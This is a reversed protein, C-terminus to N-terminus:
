AVFVATEDLYGFQRMVKGHQHLIREIQSPTLEKLGSGTEGKRFFSPSTIPRERFGSAEEQDKLTEFSSFELAKRIDDTSCDLGIFRVAKEFTEFPSQKMDEYRIVHVPLGSSMWSRVHGSWSMLLQRFQHTICGDDGALREGYDAMRSLAKDYPCGFHGAFSVAVDMPNRIIYLVGATAKATVIPIGDGNRTWADHIKMFVPGADNEAIHEYLLPRIRDIEDMTLDSSEIGVREDFVSRSCSIRVLGIRNITVPEAQGSLLNELFIRFWTNGSKPYSALWFIGKKM